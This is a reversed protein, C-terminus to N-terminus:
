PRSLPPDQTPLKLGTPHEYQSTPEIILSLVSVHLCTPPEAIALAGQDGEPIVQATGSGCLILLCSAM